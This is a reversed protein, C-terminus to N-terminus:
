PRRGLEERARGALARLRKRAEATKLRGAAAKVLTAINRPHRKLLEVVDADDRARGSMVKLAILESLQPVPLPQVPLTRLDAPDPFTEASRPATKEGEVYVEVGVGLVTHKFGEPHRRWGQEQKFQRLLAVADERCVLLDVDATFRAYGHHNVALGGIVLPVVGADGCLRALEDALRRKSDEPKLGYPEDKDMLAMAGFAEEISSHAM